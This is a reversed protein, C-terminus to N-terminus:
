GGEGKLTVRSAGVLVGRGTRQIQARVAALSAALEDRTPILSTADGVLRGARPYAIHIVWGQESM